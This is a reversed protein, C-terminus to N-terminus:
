MFALMSPNPLSLGDEEVQRRLPTRRVDVTM